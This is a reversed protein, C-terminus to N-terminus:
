LPTSNGSEAELIDYALYIYFPIDNISNLQNEFTEFSVFNDIKFSIHYWGVKFNELNMETISKTM